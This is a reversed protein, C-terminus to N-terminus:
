SKGATVGNRLFEIRCRETNDQGAPSLNFSWGPKEYSENGCVPWQPSFGQVPVQQLESFLSISLVNPKTSKDSRM